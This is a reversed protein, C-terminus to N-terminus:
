KDVGEGYDKTGKFDPRLEQTTSWYHDAYNIGIPTNKYGTHFEPAFSYAPLINNSKGIVDRLLIGGVYKFPPELEKTEGQRKVYEVMHKHGKISGLPANNLRDHGDVAYISFFQWVMFPANEISNVCRMDADIYVGGFDRLLQARVIDSCGAYLGRKYYEDYIKRNDLGLKDIEKETWLRHVFHPNKDKWTNIWEMPAEKDGIWIQHIIWPVTYLPKLQGVWLLPDELGVYRWEYGNFGEQYRERQADHLLVVGDPKLMKKASKLCKVRNRGDIYIVDYKGGPELYEKSDTDALVLKIKDNRGCWGQVREYWEKNHEIGTWTYKIGVKDLLDTFYKTSTGIGWELVDVEKFRQLLNEFFFLGDPNLDMPPEAVGESKVPTLRNDQGVVYDRPINVERKFLVDSQDALEAFSYWRKKNKEDMHDGIFVLAEKFNANYKLAEWASDCAENYKNLKALCRAKMLWADNKEALYESRLIYEGLEDIAKQWQGRYFYERALYYRERTLQPSQEVAKKLIRLTRDPDLKHAPSYGYSISISDTASFESRNKRDTVYNHADGEWFIDSDRKFIRPFYHSAGSTEEDVLKVRVKGYEEGISSLIKRIEEISTNLVEDADITLIWDIDEPVKGLAWNRAKAFSDEWKYDTYVLDTYKKAINVTNDISGTDAIVIMDAGQVSDLCRSLLEEENKVIMNVCITPGKKNSM